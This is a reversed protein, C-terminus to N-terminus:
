NGFCKHLYTSIVITEWFVSKLGSSLLLHKNTELNIYFKRTAILIIHIEYSRLALNQSNNQLFSLWLKSLTHFYLYNKNIITICEVYIQRRGGNISISKYAYQM